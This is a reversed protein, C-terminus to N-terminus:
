EQKLIGAVFKKWQLHAIGIKAGTGIVAHRMKDVTNETQTNSKENRGEESVMVKKGSRKVIFSSTAEETYFHAPSKDDSGPAKVPRVRFAFLDEDDSREKDIIEEIRVWDYGYGEEPGPGPIDIRILNGVKPLHEQVKGTEDTLRFSAGITGSWEDWGNIHKLRNKAHDFLLMAERISETDMSEEAGSESGTVQPPILKDTSKM